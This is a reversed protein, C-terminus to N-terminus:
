RNDSKTKQENIIGNWIKREALIESKDPLSTKQKLMFRVIGTEVRVYECAHKADARRQDL